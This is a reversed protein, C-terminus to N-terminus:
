DRFFVRNLSYVEIKSMRFNIGGTLFNFSNEDPPCHYANDLSTSWYPNVTTDVTRLDCNKEGGFTPGCGIHCYMAYKEQGLILPM